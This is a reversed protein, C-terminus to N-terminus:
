PIRSRWALDILGLLMPLAIGVVALTGVVERGRTPWRVLREAVWGGLLAGPLALPGAILAVGVNPVFVLQTLAAVWGAVSYGLQESAGLRRAILLGLAAPLYPVLLFVRAREDGLLTLLPGLLAAALLRLDSGVVRRALALGLGVSFAVLPLALPNARTLNGAQYIRWTHQLNADARAVLTDEFFRRLAPLPANQLLPGGVLLDATALLLWGILVASPLPLRDGGEARLLALRAAAFGWAALLIGRGLVAHPTSWGTEDLGFASHWISDLLGALGLVVFAGGLLALPGPVAFPFPSLRFAGTGSAFVARVSPAFAAAAVLAAGAAVSTYIFLHPPSWFEEFPHSTHWQRDWAAGVGVALAFFTLSGWLLWRARTIAMREM